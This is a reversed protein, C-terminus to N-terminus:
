EDEITYDGPDGGTGFTVKYYQTESPAYIIDLAANRIWIKFHRVSGPTYGSWMHDHDTGHVSTWDNKPIWFPMGEVREYFKCDASESTNYIFRVATQAVTIDMNSFSFAEAETTGSYRNHSQGLRTSNPDRSKPRLEYYTEPTLGTITVDHSTRLTEDEDTTNSLPNNSGASYAVLSTAAFNTDWTVQISESDLVTVVVNSVFPVKTAMTRTGYMLPTEAAPTMSGTVEVRFSGALAAQNNAGEVVVFTPKDYLFKFSQVDESAMFYDRLIGEVWEIAACVGKKSDADIGLVANEFSGDTGGVLGLSAWIRATVRPIVITDSGDSVNTYERDVDVPCVTFKIDTYQKPILAPAIEVSEGASLNDSIKSKLAELVDTMNLSPAGM